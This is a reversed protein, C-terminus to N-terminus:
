EANNEESSASATETAAPTTELEETAPTAIGAMEAPTAEHAANQSSVPSAGDSPTEESGSAPTEATAAASAQRRAQLEALEEGHLTPDNFQPLNMELRIAKIAQYVEGPKLLLEEAIKKHIGIAPVPLYPMYATKIKELEESSGKYTQTEWWSPIHNRERFEQVIKKVAKKPISLEKSIQTRIGDFEQPTALEQYRAEVLEM